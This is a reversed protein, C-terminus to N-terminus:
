SPPNAELAKKVTRVEKVYSEKHAGKQVSEPLPNGLKEKSTEKFHLVTKKGDPSTEFRYETNIDALNYNVTRRTIRHEDPFFSYEMILHQIPLNLVRAAIEVVKKNATSSKLKTMVFSEPSYQHGREPYTYADFVRPLTDDFITQFEIDWTDDNKEMKEQSIEAVNEWQVAARRMAILQYGLWALAIVVVLAVAGLIKKM